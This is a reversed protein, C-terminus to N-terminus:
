AVALNRSTVSCHDGGQRAQVEASDTNNQVKEDQRNWRGGLSRSSKRGKEGKV